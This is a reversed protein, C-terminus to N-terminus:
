EGDIVETDDNKRHKSIFSDVKDVLDPVLDLIKDATSGSQQMPILKVKDGTIVLFAVPKVSVGGGTGGGFPYDGTAPVDKKSIDSGGAGFGCAVQTVPIIISGSDTTIPEGIVNNVDIMGKISNMAEKVLENIKAM